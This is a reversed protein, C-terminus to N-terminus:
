WSMVMMNAFLECLETAIFIHKSTQLHGFTSCTYYTRRTAQEHVYYNAYYRTKCDIRPHIILRFLCSGLERRCYLSTTFGPVAGFARTFVSIPHSKPEGLKRTRHENRNALLQQRCTPDICVRTPPTINFLGIYCNLQLRLFVLSTHFTSIGRSLGHEMFLRIYKHHLAEIDGETGEFAWALDRFATWALKATDDSIDLCVKLFEHISATLSAPPGPHYSAEQLAISPKLCRVLGIYDVIADYNLASLEQNDSLIRALQLFSM